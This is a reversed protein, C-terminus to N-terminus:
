PSEFYVYHERKVQEVRRKETEILLDLDNRDFLLRRGIKVSPIQRRRAWAYLTSKKLGLYSAAEEVSRLRWKM